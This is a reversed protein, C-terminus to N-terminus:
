MYMYSTMDVLRGLIFDNMLSIVTNLIARTRIVTAINLGCPPKWVQWSRGTVRIHGCLLCPMTVVSNLDCKNIPTSSEMVSLVGLKERM